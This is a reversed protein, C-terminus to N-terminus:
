PEGRSYLLDSNGKERMVSDHEVTHVSWMKSIWESTLPCETQKQKKAIIFLAATFMPPCTDM